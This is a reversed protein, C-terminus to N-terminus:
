TMGTVTQSARRLNWLGPIWLIQYGPQYRSESPLDWPEQEIKARVAVVAAVAAVVGACFVEDEVKAALM